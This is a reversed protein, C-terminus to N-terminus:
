STFFNKVKQKTKVLSLKIASYRMVKAINKWRSKEYCPNPCKRCRPKIEHPCNQLREFSYNIAEHCEECLNLSINFIKEKYELSINKQYQKIHHNKCYVKFFEELTKIEIDFKENTM